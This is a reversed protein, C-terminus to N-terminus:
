EDNLPGWATAFALIRESSVEDLRMFGALAHGPPPSWARWERGKPWELWDSDDSLRIVRPTGPVQYQLERADLPAINLMPGLLAMGATVLHLEFRRWGRSTALGEITM